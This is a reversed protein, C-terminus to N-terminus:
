ATEAPRTPHLSTGPQFVLNVRTGGEARPAVSCTGGLSAARDRMIALGYHHMPAPGVAIGVGDDDITVGVAGDSTRVLRVEVRTARAHHEVNTLAERVVQLTHIQENASLELDSLRNDIAIAIGTRLAFESGTEQLATAFGRGDIRLRFTTLLERLQRYASNLGERLDTIIAQTAASKQGLELSKQLRAVQIKLYSLAQALSDHLERAIVSREELLALRHQEQTRAATALAAGVHHGVSEMLEIQWPELAETSDVRIPMVGYGRGSEGLPMTLLQTGAVEDLPRVSIGVSQGCRKCIEPACLGAAIEEASGTFAMPTGHLQGPARACIVGVRAGVVRQTDELVKQLTERTVKHESLTRTIDYLLSLSRNTRELEETKERVRAELQGYIASLDTAMSNFAQALEDFEATEQECVRASFDGSRMARSSREFERLPSVIHERAYYMIVSLLTVSLFLAAGQFIKLREIQTDLDSEILRVLQDAERVLSRIDEILAHQPTTGAIAVIQPRLRTWHQSLRRYQARTADAADLPISNVLGGAAIRADLEAVDRLVAGRRAAPEVTSDALALGVAYSQMRLSGAINIATGKGTSNETFIVLSVVSITSLVGVLALSVGLRMVLSRTFLRRLFGM